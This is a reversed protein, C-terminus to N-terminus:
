AKEFADLLSWRILTRKFSSPCHGEHALAFTSELISAGNLPASGSGGVAVLFLCGELASDLCARALESQSGRLITEPHAWNM